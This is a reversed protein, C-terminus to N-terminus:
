AAAGGALPGAQTAADSEPVFRRPEVGGPPWELLEARRQEDDGSRRLWVFTQTGIRRTCEPDAFAPSWCGGNVYHVPGVQRSEPGHTHGFVVQRAGTIRHILDARRLSLLPRTFVNSSVKRSYTLFAPMAIAILVFVWLPSAPLVINVMLVIQWAGYFLALLLLGRDLWLERLIMLPKTCASPVQLAHLKRVIPPSAQARDAIDQVKDEVLLPDQMAPSWFDRLSLLLTVMAGWFWTWLLFPQTRFMYKFFFKAYEVASMIYNSSAHPNFYGMGNLMYRQAQDGFPIRVRPKRGISILPDIPNQIVCYPDYQNGHSIYTDSGSLYFWNCFSLQEGTQGDVGAAERVCRQVEPWHVEADHNGIVFVVRHGQSLFTRLAEFWVPHDEVIRRVKFVSMWQESPLGRLRALWDVPGEPESPLQCISDFDFIDGNLILEVPGHAHDHVYACLRSFDSDVFFESRKYAMWLPRRPDPAQADALHLDSVVVTELAPATADSAAAPAM